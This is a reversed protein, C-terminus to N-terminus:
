LGREGLLWVGEVRRLRQARSVDRGHADGGQRRVGDPGLGREARARSRRGLRRTRLVQGPLRLLHANRQLQLRLRRPLLARNPPRRLPLATFQPPRLRTRSRDHRKPGAIRATPTLAVHHNLILTQRYAISVITLPRSPSDTEFPLPASVPPKHQLALCATTLTGDTEYVLVLEYRIYVQVLRSSCTALDHSLSSVIVLDHVTAKLRPM